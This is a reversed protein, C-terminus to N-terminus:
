EDLNEEGYTGYDVTLEEGESIERTTFFNGDDERLNPKLSHNVYWGIGIDNLSGFPVDYEGKNEPCFDVVMKKMEDSLNSNEQIDEVKVTDFNIQKTELFPNIGSPIKRVAFVGVGHIPSPKLRCFVNEELDRVFPHKM